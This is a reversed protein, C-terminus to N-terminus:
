APVLLVHHDPCTRVRVGVSRRWWVFNGDRPCVYKRANIPEGPGPLPQMGREQSFQLEPPRHLPDGLVQGAWNLTAPSRELLDTIRDDVNVGGAAETLLQTIHKDYTRAEKGVLAALYPRIARVVDLLSEDSSV